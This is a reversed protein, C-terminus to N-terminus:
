RLINILNFKMGTTVELLQYEKNFEAIAQQYNIAGRTQIEKLRTYEATSIEGNMFENQAMRMQMMTFNQYENYIRIYNQYQVLNNYHDIVEKALFRRNIERQTLAIEIWKKQKNIRNRRDFISALPFRIYFGVAYNDRISESRYYRDRKTIEDRDWFNWKGLNLDLNLSLHELWARQASLQEYYYYQAKLEQYHMDPSNYAASDILVSLPPLRKVINDTLPNFYRSSDVKQQQGFAPVTLLFFLVLCGTIRTADIWKNQKKIEKKM